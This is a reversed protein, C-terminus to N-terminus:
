QELIPRTETRCSEALLRGDALSDRTQVRGGLFVNSALGIFMKDAFKMGVVIVASLRKVLPTNVIKSIHPIDMKTMDTTESFILVIPALALKHKDLLKVCDQSFSVVLDVTIVGYYQAYLVGDELWIRNMPSTTM